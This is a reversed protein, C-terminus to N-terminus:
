FQCIHLTKQTFTQMCLQHRDMTFCESMNYGLHGCSWAQDLWLEYSTQFHRPITTICGEESLFSFQSTYINELNKSHIDQFKSVSPHYTNQLLSFQGSLQLFSIPLSTQNWCVGLELCGERNIQARVALRGMHLQTNGGCVTLPLRCGNINVEHLIM